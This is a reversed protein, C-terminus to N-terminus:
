LYSIYLYLVQPLRSQSLDFHILDSTMFMFKMLLM